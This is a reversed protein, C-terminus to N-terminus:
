RSGVAPNRGGASYDGARWKHLAANVTWWLSIGGTSLCALLQLADDWTM